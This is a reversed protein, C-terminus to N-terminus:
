SILIKYLSVLEDYTEKTLIKKMSEPADTVAQQGFTAIVEIFRGKDIALDCVLKNLGKLEESLTHCFTIVRKNM